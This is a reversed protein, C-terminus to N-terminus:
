SFKNPKSKMETKIKCNALVINDKNSGVSSGSGSGGCSMSFSIGIYLLGLAKPALSGPINHRRMHVLPNCWFIDKTHSNWIQLHQTDHGLKM